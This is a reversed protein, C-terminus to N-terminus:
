AEEIYKTVTVFKWTTDSLLQDKIVKLSGRVKYGFLLEFPSVSLSENPTERMAFPVYPLAEDCEPDQDHCFKCLFAKITQHCRELAGLSQSHYATSLTQIIGLEALVAACLDSTFDTDIM